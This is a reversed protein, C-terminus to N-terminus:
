IHTITVSYLSQLGNLSSFSVCQPKVLCSWHSWAHCLIYRSMCYRYLTFVTSRYTHDVQQIEVLPCWETVSPSIHFLLLCSAQQMECYLNLWTFYVKLIIISCIVYCVHSVRLCCMLGLQTESIVSINASTLLHQINIQSLRYWNTSKTAQQDDTATIQLPRRYLWRNVSTDEPEDPLSRHHCFLM